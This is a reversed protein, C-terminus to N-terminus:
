GTYFFFAGGITVAGSDLFGSADAVNLTNDPLSHTASLTTSASVVTASSGNVKFTASTEPRMYFKATAASLDVPIGDVTITTYFSPSRDGKYREM